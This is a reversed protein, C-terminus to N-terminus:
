PSVVISAVLFLSAALFLANVSFLFFFWQVASGADHPKMYRKM